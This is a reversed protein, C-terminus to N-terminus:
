LSMGFRVVKALPDPMAARLLCEMHRLTSWEELFAKYSGQYVLLDQRDTSVYMTQFYPFITPAAGTHDDFYKIFEDISGSAVAKDYDDNFKEFGGNAETAEEDGIIKHFEFFFKKFNPLLIEPKITYYTEKNGKENETQNANYYNFFDKAAYKEFRMKREDNSGWYGKEFRFAVPIAGYIGQGM